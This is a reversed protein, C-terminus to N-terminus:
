ILREARKNEKNWYFILLRNIQVRIFLPHSMEGSFDKEITNLVLDTESVEGSNWYCFALTIKAEASRELLDLSEFMEVSKFLFDKATEQCYKLNNARGYFTLYFGCLRLIEAKIEDDYGAIEPRKKIDLWIPELVVRLTKIDRAFEAKNAEKILKKIKVRFFPKLTIESKISTKKLRNEITDFALEILKPIPTLGMEYESILIPCIELLESLDQQSLGL